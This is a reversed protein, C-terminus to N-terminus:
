VKKPIKCFNPKRALKKQRNSSVFIDLHGQAIPPLNSLINGYALM